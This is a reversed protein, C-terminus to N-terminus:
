EVRRRIRMPAFVRRGSRRQCPTVLDFREPWEDFPAIANSAATITTTVDM